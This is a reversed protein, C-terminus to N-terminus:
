KECILPGMPSIQDQTHGHRMRNFSMMNYIIICWRVVDYLITDFNHATAFTMYAINLKMLINNLRM